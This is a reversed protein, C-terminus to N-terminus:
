SRYEANIKVYDFSFDCTWVTATASGRALDIKITIDSKKMEESGAKETYDKARAGESVILVSNIWVNIAEVDLQEISSKGVAALIRGWNADSAFLATKVLPSHAVSYAVQKCEAHSIGNIVNVAVFKTAGEGDRVIAHALYLCVTTLHKKFSIALESQKNNEDIALGKVQGTAILMCADNTSTDGDVTIANFTEEIVDNFISQLVQPAVMLDTAIFGLMTAMNPCIMGSGKAIGTIVIQQGEFEFRTSFAKPKTDTTMIGIAADHWADGKKSATAAASCAAVARPLATLIPLTPLPEGIVGTSFPLIASPDCHVLSALAECCASAAELGALGTGANANGTNILFYRLNQTKFHTALNKKAIQVPAACFANKTFVGAVCSGEAISILVLDKRNKYRIAADVASLCIGAVPYLM